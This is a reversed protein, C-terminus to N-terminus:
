EAGGAIAQCAAREEQSLAVWIDRRQDGTITDDVRLGDLVERLRHKDRRQCCDRILEVWLEPASPEPEASIAAIAKLMARSRPSLRSWCLASEQPTFAEDHGQLWGVFTGLFGLCDLAHGKNFEWDPIGWGGENKPRPTNEPVPLSDLFDLPSAGFGRTVSPEIGLPIAKQPNHHNESYDGQPSSFNNTPQHELAATVDCSYGTSDQFIM